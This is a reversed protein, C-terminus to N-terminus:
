CKDSSLVFKQMKNVTKVIKCFYEGTGRGASPKCAALAVVVKDQQQM